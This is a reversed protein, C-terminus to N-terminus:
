IIGLVDYLQDLLCDVDNEYKYRWLEQCEEEYARRLAALEERLEDARDEATSFGM